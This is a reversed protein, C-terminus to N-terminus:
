FLLQVIYDVLTSKKIKYKKAFLGFLVHMSRKDWDTQNRVCYNFYFCQDEYQKNDYKINKANAGDVYLRFETTSFKGYIPYYIIGKYYTTIGSSWNLRFKFLSIDPKLTDYFGSQLNMDQFVIEQQAGLNASKKAKEIINNRIDSILMLENKRLKKNKILCNRLKKADNITFYQVYIHVNSFNALNKDFVNRPDYLYWEIHPLFKALVNIHTGPAAGAYIVYRIKKAKLLLFVEMESLLLKLQGYHLNKKSLTESKLKNYVMEKTTKRTHHLIFDNPYKLNKIKGPDTIDKLVNGHKKFINGGTRSKGRKTNKKQKSKKRSRVPKKTTKVM